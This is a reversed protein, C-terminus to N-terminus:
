PCPTASFTSGRRDGRACRYANREEALRWSGDSDRRLELRSWLADISDDHLGELLATFRLVKPFQGGDNSMKLDFRLPWEGNADFGLHLRKAVILLPERPWTEGARLAADIEINFPQCDVVESSLIVPDGAPASSPAAALLPGSSLLLLSLPVTVMLLLKM